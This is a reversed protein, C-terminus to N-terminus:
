MLKLRQMIFVGCQLSVQNFPVQCFDGYGQTLVFFCLYAHVDTYTHDVITKEHHKHTNIFCYDAFLIM